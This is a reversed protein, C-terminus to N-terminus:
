QGYGILDLTADTRVAPMSLPLLLRRAVARALTRECTIMEVSIPPCVSSGDPALSGFLRGCFYWLIVINCRLDSVLWGFVLPM